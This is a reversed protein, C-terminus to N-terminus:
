KNDRQREHVTRCATSKFLKVARNDGGRAREPNRLPANEPMNQQRIRFAADDGAEYERKRAREAFETGCDKERAINRTFRLRHTRRNVSGYLRVIIVKGKRPRDDDTCEGENEDRGQIEPQAM